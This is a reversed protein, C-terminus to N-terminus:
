KEIIEARDRVAISFFCDFMEASWSPDPVPLGFKGFERKILTPKLENVFADFKSGDPFSGIFPVLLVTDEEPFYIDDVSISKQAALESLLGMFKAKPTLILVSVDSKKILMDNM